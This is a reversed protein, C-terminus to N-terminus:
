FLTFETLIHLQSYLVGPLCHTDYIACLMRSVTVLVNFLLVSSIQELPTFGIKKKLPPPSCYLSQFGGALLRPVLTPSLAMM